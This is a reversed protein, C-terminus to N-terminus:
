HLFRGNCIKLNSCLFRWKSNRWASLSIGIVISVIEFTSFDFNLYKEWSNDYDDEIGDDWGRQAQINSIHIFLLHFLFLTQKKIKDTMIIGNTNM